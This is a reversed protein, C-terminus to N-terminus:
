DGRGLMRTMSDIIRSCAKGDFEARGPASAAADRSLREREQPDEVLRKLASTLGGVDREIITGPLNAFQAYEFRLLDAMITPIGMLLAWRVTSSYSAVFLDAAPLAASLREALIRCGTAAAAERYTEAKSRPHLSLLVNGGSAALAKFLQGSVEMHRDWGVLAHEGAHPVACIVLPRGPILSYKDALRARCDAARAHSSHLEDM